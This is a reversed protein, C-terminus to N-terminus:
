LHGLLIHSYEGRDMCPAAGPVAERRHREGETCWGLGPSPVIQLEWLQAAGHAEASPKPSLQCM